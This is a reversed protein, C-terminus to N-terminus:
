VDTFAKWGENIHSMFPKLFARHDALCVFSNWSLADGMSAPGSRHIGVLHKRQYVGSGAAGATTSIRYGYLAKFVHLIHATAWERVELPKLAIVVAELEKMSPKYNGTYRSIIGALDVPRNIGLLTLQFNKDLEAPSVTQSTLEPLRHASTETCHLVVLDDEPSICSDFVFGTGKQLPPVSALIQVEIGKGPELDEETEAVQILMRDMGQVEHEHNKRIMVSHATALIRGTGKNSCLVCTGLQVYHTPDQLSSNWYSCKLRLTNRPFKELVSEGPMTQRFSEVPLLCTTSTEADTKLLISQYELDVNDDPFDTEIGFETPSLYPRTDDQFSQPDTGYFAIGENPGASPRASSSTPLHAPYSSM